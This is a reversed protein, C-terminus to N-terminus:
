HGTTGLHPTSPTTRVPRHTAYACAVVFFLLAYSGWSEWRSGTTTHSRLYGAIGVGTAM